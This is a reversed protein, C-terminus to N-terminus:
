IPSVQTIWALKKEFDEAEMVDAFDGEDCWTM